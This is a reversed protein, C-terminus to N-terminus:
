ALMVDPASAVRSLVTIKGLLDGQARTTIKWLHRDEWHHESNRLIFLWWSVPPHRSCQRGTTSEKPMLLCKRQEMGKFCLLM